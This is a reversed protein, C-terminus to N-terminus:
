KATKERESGQRQWERCTNAKIKKRRWITTPITSTTKATTAVHTQLTLTSWFVRTAKKLTYTNHINKDDDDMNQRIIILSKFNKNNNRMKSVMPALIVIIYLSYREISVMDALLRFFVVSQTLFLTYFCCCIWSHSRESLMFTCM